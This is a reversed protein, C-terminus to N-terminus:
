AAVTSGADMGMSVLIKRAGSFSARGHMVLRNDVVLLDARSWPFEKRNERIRSRLEEIMWMEIPDGSEFRCYHYLENAARRVGALGVGLESVDRYWRDFPSFIAEAKTVPHVVFPWLSEEVHLSGDQRWFHFAEIENLFAAVKERSDTEFTAMWSKGAGVGNHLNQVFTIRQAKM